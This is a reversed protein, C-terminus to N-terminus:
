QTVLAATPSVAFGAGGPLIDFAVAEVVLGAPVACAIEFLFEDAGATFHFPVTGLPAQVQFLLPATSSAHLGLYPGSGLGNPAPELSLVNFSEAGVTRGQNTLRFTGPGLPQSMAISLPPPAGNLFRVDDIWMWMDFSADLANALNIEFYLTQGALASPVTVVTTKPTLAPAFEAVAILPWPLVGTSPPTVAPQPTQFPFRAMDAYLLSLVRVGAADTLDVTFFDNFQGLVQWIGHPGPEVSVATWDFRIQVPAAGAPAPVVVQKRLRASTGPPLPLAPAVGSGFVPPPASGTGTTEVVAWRSGSTPFGSSGQALPGWPAVVGVGSFREWGGPDTANSPLNGPLSLEFSSVTQAAATSTAALCWLAARAAAGSVRRKLTRAM